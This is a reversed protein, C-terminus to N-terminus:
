REKRRIGAMKRSTIRKCARLVSEYTVSVENPSLKFFFGFYGDFFECFEEM